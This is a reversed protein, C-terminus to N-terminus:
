FLFLDLDQVVCVWVWVFVCDHTARVQKSGSITEWEQLLPVRLVPPLKLQVEAGVFADNGGDENDFRREKAGTRDQRKRPTFPAAAAM